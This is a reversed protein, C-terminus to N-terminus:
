LNVFYNVLKALGYRYNLNVNIDIIVVGFDISKKPPLIILLIYDFYNDFGIMLILFVPSDVFFPLILNFEELSELKQQYLILNKKFYSFHLM